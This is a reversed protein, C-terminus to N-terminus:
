RFFVWWDHVVAFYFVEVMYLVAAWKWELVESITTWSLEVKRCLLRTMEKVSWQQKIEGTRADGYSEFLDVL